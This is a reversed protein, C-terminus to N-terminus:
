NNRRRRTSRRLADGRAIDDEDGEDAADMASASRRQAQTRPGHGTLAAPQASVRDVIPLTSYSPLPSGDTSTPESSGRETSEPDEETDSPTDASIDFHTVPPTYHSSDEVFLSNETLEGTEDPPTPLTAIVRDQFFALHEATM